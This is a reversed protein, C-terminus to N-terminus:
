NSGEREARLAKILLVMAAANIALGHRAAYDRLETAIPERIRIRTDPKATVPRHDPRVPPAM